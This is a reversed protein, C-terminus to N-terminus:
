MALETSPGIDLLPCLKASVTEVADDASVSIWAGLDGIELHSQALAVKANADSADARRQTVRALRTRESAMLWVGDFRCSAAKAVNEIANREAPPAFVADAIVAQGSALIGSAAADLAKYVRDAAAATYSEPDLRTEPTVGALRKRLVDNRLIRAGPVRGIDGGLSRALSSKGTGSLGGIAVLRSPRPEIAAIALALYAQSKEVLEPEDLSRLAQAAMVHARVTARVSIFLPMLAVGGEDAPSMDLYRNFVINAETRMGRQWLDMILFAVDYLVDITALEASFELCDFLTPAGDIMAINALHLDGHAHRVRSARGREDLLARLASVAKRHSTCLNAVAVPALIEPFNALSAANGDIVAIFRTAASDCHLIEADAHFAVIRDTLRTVVGFGPTGRDALHALLADDPFRRMELLWDIPEGTGGICLQGAHDRVIPVVAIYLDPATRRNLLLEARLADRRNDVTLFDLYGFSIARKLKWARDGVLFISAAHTDIERATIGGVISGECRLFKLVAAQGDDIVSKAHASSTAM